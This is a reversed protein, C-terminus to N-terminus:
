KLDRYLRANELSLAAESSLLRLLAMRKPTFVGAPLTNVLYLVGVLRTQKHLPM